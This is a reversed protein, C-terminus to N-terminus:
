VFMLAKLQDIVDCVAIHSCHHRSFLYLTTLFSLKCEGSLALSLRKMSKRLYVPAMRRTRM